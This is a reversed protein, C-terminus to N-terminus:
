QNEVWDLQCRKIQGFHTHNKFLLLLEKLAVKRGDKTVHATAFVGFEQQMLFEFNRVRLLTWTELLESISKEPLTLQNNWETPNWGYYQSGPEAISQRIRGSILMESDVLHHLQEYVSWSSETAKFHMAAEPIEHILAALLETNQRYNKLHALMEAETFDTNQWWELRATCRKYITNDFPVEVFGYNRYLRFATPLKRSTFIDIRKNPYSQCAQLAAEFLAKGIGKGRASEVVGMKTIELLDEGPMIGVVGVPQKDLVAVLIKGGKDLIYQEPNNLVEADFPEVYFYKELWNLNIDRFADRYKAQYPVIEPTM